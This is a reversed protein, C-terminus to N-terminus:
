VKGLIDKNLGPSYVSKPIHLKAVDLELFTFESIRDSSGRSPQPSFAQSRRSRTNSIASSIRSYLPLKVM